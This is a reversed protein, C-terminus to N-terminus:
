RNLTRHASFTDCADLLDAIRATALCEVTDAAGYYIRVTGDGEDILGGPFIVGGRFGHTEYRETPLMIPEPSLGTARWPEDLDLLMAGVTYRKTWDRTEWSDLPRNEDKDVVHILALWGRDTRIPPAAPGIKNNCWPLQEAGLVLQQNGWYRADPSDAFWIDFREPAGRGYIPFPRELRCFKGNVKEPFLVMNRNDPASMSLVDFHEFDDTVAVGGRIGHMTDVAFCMYCRDDIVTLRPDYARRMEDSNMEFCPEPAVTWDVGDDSWALGINTRWREGSQYEQKNKPGYDNRVVMVYQGRFKAVGANFVLTSDYPVDAAALVPNGPHRHILETATNM